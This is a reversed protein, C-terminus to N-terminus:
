QHQKYDSASNKEKRVIVFYFGDELNIVITEVFEPRLQELGSAAVWGVIKYGM